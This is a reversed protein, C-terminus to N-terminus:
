EALFDVVAATLAAGQETGFVHQAHASGPLVLVRKPEPVKAFDERLRAAAPEDRSSVLLTPVRLRDPHAIAPPALCSSGRSRVPGPRAAAEAAAGGGISAGVVDVRAVGADHLYRVAALVDEFRDDKAPAVSQGYGRFDIALVRHGREALREALERWSGKDFIAGHALVVGSGSGDGYRDAFVRGGDATAFSVVEPPKAAAALAVLAIM